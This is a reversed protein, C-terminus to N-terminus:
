RTNMVTLGNIMFRSVPHDPIHRRIACQKGGAPEEYSGM